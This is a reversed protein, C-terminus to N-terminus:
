SKLVSKIHEELRSLTYPKQIIGALGLGATRTGVDSENYGTVMLIPVSADLRRLGQFTEVGGLEPMTLDLLVLKLQDHHLQFRELAERGNAATIITFGLRALMRQAVLRVKEEDDVLLITGSGTWIPEPEAQLMTSEPAGDTAPLLVQFSTGHGPNSTLKVAGHHGRVIGLVASLGLGRGTFKTTFFPEFIRRQTEVDMGCGTDAVELWVYDGEAPKEHLCTDQLFASSCHRAGTSLKIAGNNEGIAESANIVLNM